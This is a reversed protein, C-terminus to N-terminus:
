EGTKKAEVNKRTLKETKLTYLISELQYVQDRKKKNPYFVFGEATVLRNNKADVVTYSLFPGGLFDNFMKWLGRTEVAYNGNFDSLTDYVPPMINPRQEVIMWTNPNEGPIYTKTISDRAAIIEKPSLQKQSEYPRVYLLIGQSYDVTEKRLWMFNDKDVALYFGQPIIIDLGLKKKITQELEANQTKKYAAQIRNRESESLLERIGEANQNFFSILEQQNPAQIRIIRQPQVWKNKQTEILPEKISKDVDLILINRAKQFLDNFNGQGVNMLKFEPEMQPLGVMPAGLKKKVAEGIAGQWQDTNDTVVLVEATNGYSSGLGERRNHCAPLLMLILAGLLLHKIFKMDMCM